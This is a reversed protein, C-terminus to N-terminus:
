DGTLRLLSVAQRPLIFRMTLTHDVPILWLPSVYLQLQGAQELAKYQQKTPNQPRGMEKWAEFANSFKQDVRYHHFLLRNEGLGNLTLEIEADNAPLNDDHYNWIIITISKEDKVALANIDPKQRVGHEIVDRASLGSSANVKLRNGHMLGYMRFVNLIPKDVGNTALDRFGAFWSQNEFEFAWTLVGQLNIQYEDMLQFIKAFSSATYSPYMTGNRYGYRPEREESCAACGEPDCEGIIVPIDQLEPFTKIAKFGAVIAQLQTGMNMQIYGNVLQPNGKAHFAVFELPAGREGTAYNTGHTCHELFGILYANAKEDDPNTTHPGGVKCEPCARKVADVAFDYLKLYEEFTGSWYGINPENWVEWLWTSVEQRGYREISHKVWQYVLEGWKDYDKPPYTWGTWLPGKESWSHQYPEPHTSMAKPMFGIEMLPKMGREIYRDIIINMLTWDYIPNGAKDETYVNTFGWKLTPNGEQATLLNHTRVYVPTPSSYSIESLLKQGDPMYTYNPEDYGFYTWIPRLPGTEEHADIDIRAPVPQTFTNKSLFIIVLSLIFINKM